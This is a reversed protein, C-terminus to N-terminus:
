LCRGGDGKKLLEQPVVEDTLWLVSHIGFDSWFGLFLHGYYAGGDGDCTIAM